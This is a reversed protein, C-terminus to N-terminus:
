LSCDGGNVIWLGSYWAIDAPTMVAGAQATRARNPM